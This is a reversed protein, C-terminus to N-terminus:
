SEQENDSNNEKYEEPPLLTILEFGRQLKEAKEEELQETLLKNFYTKLYVTEKQKKAYLHYLIPKKEITKDEPLRIIRGLRQISERISVSNQYVIAVDAERIDVGENFSKVTVIIRASGNGFSDLADKNEQEREYPTWESQKVQEKTVSYYRKVKDKGLKDALENYLEDASKIHEAFVIVKREANEEALKICMEKRAQASQIFERRSLFAETLEYAAYITPYGENQYLWTKFLEDKNKEKSFAEKQKMIKGLEKSFESRIGFAVGVMSTEYDSDQHRMHQAAKGTRSEDNNLAEFFAEKTMRLRKDLKVLIKLEEDNLPCDINEITFPSVAGDALAELVTYRYIIDGLLKFIQREKKDYREPTASLAVSFYDIGSIPNDEIIKLGEFMKQSNTAAYNHCEDAIYFHYFNHGLEENLVDMAMTDSALEKQATKGIYIMFKKDYWNAKKNGDGRLTIEEKRVHFKDMLEQYWQHLLTKTPVIISTKVEYRQQLVNDLCYLSFLTKGAGTCVSFTGHYKAEDGTWAAIAEQQWTRPQFNTLVCSPVGSLTNRQNLLTAMFDMYLDARNDSSQTMLGFILNILMKLSQKIGDVSDSDGYMEVQFVFEQDEDDTLERVRISSKGSLYFREVATDLVTTPIDKIRVWVKVMSQSTNDHQIETVRNNKYFNVLSSDLTHFARMTQYYQESFESGEDGTLGDPDNSIAEAEEEFLGEFEDRAKRTEKFIEIEKEIEDYSTPLEGGKIINNIFDGVHNAKEELQKLLDTKQKYQQETM